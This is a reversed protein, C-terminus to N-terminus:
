PPALAGTGVPPQAVTSGSRAASSLPSRVWSGKKKGAPMRSGPLTGSTYYQWQGEEEESAVEVRTPYWQREKEGSSAEIGQPYPVAALPRLALKLNSGGSSHPQCVRNPARPLGRGGGSGGGGCTSSGGGGTCSSPGGRWTKGDGVEM